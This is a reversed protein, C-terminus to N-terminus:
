DKTIPKIKRIKRIIGGTNVPRSIVNEPTTTATVPTARIKAPAATVNPNPPAIGVVLDQRANITSGPIPPLGLIDLALNGADGNRVPPRSSGYPPNQDGPDKRNQSNLSYLDAGRQVGPGWVYFPIRFNDREKSDEHGKTGSQGGHDSTIILTTNGRLKNSSEITALVQGILWDVKAISKMYDSNKSSINWGKSHGASDSNVLHLMTFNPPNGGKLAEILSKVLEETSGSIMFLDIKDRGNNKGVKDAAGKRKDYSVDYLSLKTKSAFLATKLGHDHAVDFVSFIYSNRNRHLNQGLKINSNEIWQHGEPGLVSRGTIMSTHNMLTATYNVDTRANDTFAGEARLRHFTPARKSGSATIGDPRTGDCSIFVVHEASSSLQPVLLFLFPLFFGKRIFSTNM